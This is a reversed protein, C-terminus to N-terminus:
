AHGDESLFDEILPTLLDPKAALDVHGGPYIHLRSKPILAALFRGNVVPIIPDDDGALVLTPQRLLPLFPASTWGAGCALQLAYGRLQGGRMATHMLEVTREGDTRMSGGYLEGAVRQLYEPDRYRRPTAMRLLIRPRAPVMAMGAGTGVLVVRRCRRRETCAFQQALGGGWSIGLVDVTDHGLGDLMQGVMRSLSPFRYPRPPLPSGGIGPVDFRIVEWAPDLEDVFPQLVELPAGIGNMLVLPPRDDAGARIAVRLRQGDVDIM